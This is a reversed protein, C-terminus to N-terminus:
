SAVMSLGGCAALNRLAMENDLSLLLILDDRTGDM